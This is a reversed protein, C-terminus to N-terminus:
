GALTVALLAEIRDALQAATVPKRVLSFAGSVLGASRWSRAM